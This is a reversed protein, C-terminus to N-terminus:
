RATTQKKRTHSTPPLILTGRLVVGEEGEAGGM